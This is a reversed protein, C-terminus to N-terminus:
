PPPRSLRREYRALVPRASMGHILISLAVVSITLGAVEAADARELGHSLAYSRIEYRSGEDECVYTRGELYEGGGKSIPNM